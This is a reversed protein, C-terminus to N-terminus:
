GSQRVSAAVHSAASASAAPVLPVPAEVPQVVELHMRAPDPRALAAAMLERAAGRGLRYLFGSAKEQDNVYLTTRKTKLASGGEGNKQATKARQAEAATVDARSPGNTSHRLEVPFHSWICFGLPQRGLELLM